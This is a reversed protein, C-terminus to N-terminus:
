GGITSMSERAVNNGIAKEAEFGDKYKNKVAMKIIEAIEEDSSGDRLSARLDINGKDYLCTKLKGEATLRIRNCGSCISRTFAPIIGVTGVYNPIKFNHSTSNFDTKLQVIDPYLSLLESKIKNYNWPKEASNVTTKETGNFPMEEIFRMSVNQNKTLEILDAFEHTNQGAMVVANIKVNFDMEVMANLTELVLPLDDRRTIQAFNERNVSDLSLNIDTINLAKLQPLYNKTLVGNTTMAVKEIGEIKCLEELFYMLDKRVFPEGGTIRIKNVGLESFIKCIRLMEEYSLINARSLFKLGKEPM